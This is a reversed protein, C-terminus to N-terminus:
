GKNTSPFAEALGAAFGNMADQAQGMTVGAKLRAVVVSSAQRFLTPANKSVFKFHHSRPIASTV